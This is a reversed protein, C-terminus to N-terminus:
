LAVAVVDPVPLHPDLEVATVDAAVPLAECPRSTAM